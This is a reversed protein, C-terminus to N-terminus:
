RAKMVAVSKTRLEDRQTATPLSGTIQWFVAIMAAKLPKGSVGDFASMAQATVEQEDYAAIEDATAVRVGSVADYREGRRDPARDRSLAVLQFAATNVTPLTPEYPGGYCFEGTATRIVWKQM